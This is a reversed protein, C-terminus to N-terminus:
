GRVSATSSPGRTEYRTNGSILKTVTHWARGLTHVAGGDSTRLSTVVIEANAEIRISSGDFYTIEAASGTGTRITDGVALVDGEGAPAFEAGGHSILVAGDVLTLTTVPVLADAEPALLASSGVGFALTVILVLAAVNRSRSLAM